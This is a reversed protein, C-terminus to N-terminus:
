KGTVNFSKTLLGGIVCLIANIWEQQTPMAGKSLIPYVVQFVGAILGLLTTSWNKIVASQLFTGMNDEKM